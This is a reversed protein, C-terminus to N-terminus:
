VDAPERGFVAFITDGLKMLDLSKLGGLYLRNALVYKETVRRMQRELFTNRVPLIPIKGRITITATVWRKRYFGCRKALKTLSKIDYSYHHGPELFMDWDHRGFRSLNRNLSAANPVGILLEGDNNLHKAVRCLFREPNLFHELVGIATVLDYSEGKQIADMGGARVDLGLEKRAFNIAKPDIEVGTVSYGLAKSRYLFQGAGCGVDLLRAPPRTEVVAFEDTSSISKTGAIVKSQSAEFSISDNAYLSESDQKDALPISRFLGCNSCREIRVEVKAARDLGAPITRLSSEVERYLFFDAKCCSPCPHRGSATTEFM